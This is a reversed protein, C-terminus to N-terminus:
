HISQTEKNHLVEQNGKQNKSTDTPIQFNTAPGAQAAKSATAEETVPLLNQAASVDV